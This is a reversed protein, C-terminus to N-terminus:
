AWWARGVAPRKRDIKGWRSPPWIIYDAQGLVLKKSVPGFIRSDGPDLKTDNEVWISYPPINTIKSYSDKPRIRQGGLGILRKMEVELPLFTQPNKFVVIDGPLSTPPSSWITYQSIPMRGVSRNMRLTKIRDTEEDIKPSNSEADELDEIELGSKQYFPFFDVKRVLVVDDKKLGPEM